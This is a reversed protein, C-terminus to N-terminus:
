CRKAIKQNGFRFFFILDCLVSCYTYLSVINYFFSVVFTFMQM